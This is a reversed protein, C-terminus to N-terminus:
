EAKKPLAQRILSALRRTLKQNPFMQPNERSEIKIRVLAGTDTKYELVCWRGVGLFTHVGFAERTTTVQTFPIRQTHNQEALVLETSTLDLFAVYQHADLLSFFSSNSYGVFWATSSPRRNENALLARLEGKMKENEFFGFASVGWFGLPFAMLLAVTGLLTQGKEFFYIGSGFAPLCFLLPVLNGLWKRRLNWIPKTEKRSDQM